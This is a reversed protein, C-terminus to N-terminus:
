FNLISIGMFIMFYLGNKNTLNWGVFVWLTLGFGSGGRRLAKVLQNEPASDVAPRLLSLGRAVAYDFLYQFGSPFGSSFEMPRHFVCPFAMSFVHFVWPFCMSFWPFAMSFGHIKNSMKFHSKQVDQSGPIKHKFCLQILPRLLMHTSGPFLKVFGKVLARTSM